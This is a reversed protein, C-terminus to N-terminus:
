GLRNRQTQVQPTELQIMDGDLASSLNGDSISIVNLAMTKFYYYTSKGVELQTREM